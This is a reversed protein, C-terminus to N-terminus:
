LPISLGFMTGSALTWIERWYRCFANYERTKLVTGSFRIDAMFELPSGIMHNLADQDSRKLVDDGRIMLEKWTIMFQHLSSQHSNFFIMGANYFGQLRNDKLGSAKWGDTTDIHHEIEPCLMLDFDSLLEFAPAIDKLAITDGDIMLTQDFPSRHAIAVKLSALRNTEKLNAILDDTELGDSLPMIVDFADSHCESAYKGDDTFIATQLWSKHGEHGAGICRM